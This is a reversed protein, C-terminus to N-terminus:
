LNQMHDWHLHTFVLSDVQAPAVGLAELGEQIKGRRGYHGADVITTRQGRVLTVTSLGLRSQDSRITFGPVVLDVTPMATRRAITQRLIPASWALRRPWGHPTTILAHHSGHRVSRM